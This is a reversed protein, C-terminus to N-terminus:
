VFVLNNLLNTRKSVVSSSLTGRLEIGHASCRSKCLHEHGLGVLRAHPLLSRAPFRGDSGIKAPPGCRYKDRYDDKIGAADPQPWRANQKRIERRRSAPRALCTRRSSREGGVEPPGGRRLRGALASGHFVRQGCLWSVPSAASLLDSSRFGM